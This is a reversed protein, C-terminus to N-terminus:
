WVPVDYGRGRLREAIRQRAQREPPLVPSLSRLLAATWLGYTLAAALGILLHRAGLRVQGPRGSRGSRWSRRDPALSGGPIPHAHAFVLEPLAPEPGPIDGSLNYQAV